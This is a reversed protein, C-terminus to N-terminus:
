EEEIIEELIGFQEVDKVKTNYNNIYFLEDCFKSLICEECHHDNFWDCTEKVTMDMFISTSTKIEKM